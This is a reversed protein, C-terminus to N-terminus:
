ADNKAESTHRIEKNKVDIKNLNYRPQNKYELFRQMIYKSWIRKNFIEMDKNM